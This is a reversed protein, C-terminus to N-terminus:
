RSSGFIQELMQEVAEWDEAVAAFDVDMWRAGGPPLVHPTYDVERFLPIQSSNGMALRKETEPSILFDALMRAAVPHPAQKLIGVTSPIRLAGFQSPQQDPFVIAVPMRDDREAVAADSDTLGWAYQGAAVALAVEDDSSLVAANGAVGKFFTEAREPGLQRHLAAAHTASTGSFPRAVACRGKWQPDALELVSGPRQTGEPLLDENVILVRARAAFGCWTNDIAIAPWSAPVDWGHPEFLGRKQLRLTLLIGEDWFVDAGSSDIEAVLSDIDHSRYANTDFRPRPEIGSGEGRAFSSLIPAAFDRDVTSYLVVEPEPRRACGAGILLITLLAAAGRQFTEM